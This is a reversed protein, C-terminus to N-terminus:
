NVKKKSTTYAKLWAIGFIVLGTIALVPVLWDSTGTAPLKDEIPIDEGGQAFENIKPKVAIDYKLGNEITLEPITILMTQMVIAETQNQQVFLYIGLELDELTFKGKENTTKIFIPEANEKAFNKLKELNEESLDDINVECNEFGIEFTFNGDLDQSSVQYVLVELNEVPESNINNIATFNIKGLNEAHVPNVIALTAMVLILSILIIKKKM